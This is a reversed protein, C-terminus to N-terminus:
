LALEALTALRARLDDFSSYWHSRDVAFARTLAPTVPAPTACLGPKRPPQAAIDAAFRARRCAARVPAAHCAQELQPVAVTEGAVEAERAVVDIEQGALM